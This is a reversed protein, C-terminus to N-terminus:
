TLVKPRFGFKRGMRHQADTGDRARGIRTMRRNTGHDRCPMSGHAQLLRLETEPRFNLMATNAFGVFESEAAEYRFPKQPLPDDATATHPLTRPVAEAGLSARHADRHRATM